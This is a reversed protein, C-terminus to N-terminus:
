GGLHLRPSCHPRVWLTWSNHMLSSAEYSNPVQAATGFLEQDQSPHNCICALDLPDHLERRSRSHYRCMHGAHCGRSALISRSHQQHSDGSPAHPMELTVDGNLGQSRHVPRSVSDRLVEEVENLYKTSWSPLGLLADRYELHITMLYILLWCTSLHPWTSVPSIDQPPRTHSFPPDM